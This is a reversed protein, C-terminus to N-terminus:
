DKIVVLRQQFQVGNEGEAELRINWNGPALPHQAVYDVGDFTFDLVVDDRQNTPRALIASLSQPQVPQDEADRLSLRIVDGAIHASATWGLSEQKAKRDNFTQSAIYSNDVELGPFSRVANFALLLNVAIIVGFAAVFGILVHRGTIEKNMAM